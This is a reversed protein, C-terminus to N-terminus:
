SSEGEHIACAMLDINDAVLWLGHTPSAYRGCACCLVVTVVGVNLADDWVSGDDLYCAPCWVRDPDPDDALVWAPVGTIGDSRFWRKTVDPERTSPKKRGQSKM